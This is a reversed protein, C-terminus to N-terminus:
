FYSTINKKGHRETVFHCIRLLNCEQHIANERSDPFIHGKTHKSLLNGSYIGGLVICPPHSTQTKGRCLHPVGVLSRGEREYIPNIEAGM